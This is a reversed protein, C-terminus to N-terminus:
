RYLELSFQTTDGRYRALSYEVPSGAESYAVTRVESLAAPLAVELLEADATRALVAGITRTVRELRVGFEAELTQYLGRTEMDMEVLRGFRDGPLYSRVAVMPVGDAFRLRHMEVLPTSHPLGLRDNVNAIGGTTSLSLLRTSPEMGLQRMEDNFSQLKSLFRGEPKPKSVFSGRGQEKIVFGESTLESLAQRITPRSIGLEAGLEAESPLLDGAELSGDKIQELIADKLQRYLPIPSNKDVAFRPAAQIPTM